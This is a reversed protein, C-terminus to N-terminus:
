WGGFAGSPCRQGMLILVFEAGWLVMCVVDFCMAWKLTRRASRWQEEMALGAFISRRPRKRRPPGGQQSGGYPAFSGPMSENEDFDEEQPPQFMGPDVILNVQVDNGNGMGKKGKKGKKGKMGGAVPLIMMGPMGPMGMGGAPNGSASRPRPSCCCPRFVFFYLIFMFTIVSLVYLIYAPLKGAPPAAPTSKMEVAGYISTAGAGLALLGQFVRIATRKRPGDTVLRGKEDVSGVVPIEGDAGETMAKGGMGQAGFEAELMRLREEKMGADIPPGLSPAEGGWPLIDRSSEDSMPHQWQHTNAHPYSPDFPFTKEGLDGPLRMHDDYPSPPAPHGNAGYWDRSWSPFQAIDIEPDQGQMAPPAVIYPYTLQRARGLASANNSFSAHSRVPPPLSFPRHIASRSSASHALSGASLLSPTNISTRSALPRVPPPSAPYPDDPRFQPYRSQTPQPHLSLAYDALDLAEVSADSAQQYPNYDGHDNSAPPNPNFPEPSWPRRFQSQPPASDLNNYM